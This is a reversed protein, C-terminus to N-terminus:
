NPSIEGITDTELKNRLLPFSYLDPDIRIIEQAAQRASAILPYDTISALKFEEHGHQQTGYLQGPGRLKLDLEALEAGTTLKELNKLRQLTTPNTSETFLLCYAPRDNRGVRGRLQHLQALGFREAAEIVIITADPIDIGVEVVPTTVLIDYVGRRFDTLTQKKESSKLKGHLLGITLPKFVSTLTEFEQTAAKVSTMSEHESTEILPCIVFALNRIESETTRDVLDPKRQEDDPARISLQKKIWQYAAHRKEKPVLWTKVAKRGKPMDDLYSLDLESYLVLAASRPIPTATMTLVHPKHTRQSLFARQRVGFRHQEDIVFVATKEPIKTKLLAHTGVVIPEAGTYTKVSGTVLAIPIKLPDFLQKLTNYHQQALLETPAMLLSSFGNSYAAYLSFAAVVTKGSGVDGQLLRNMPNRGSLDSLIESIARNQARTLTFPVTEFFRNLDQKSIILRFHNKQRHWAQKKLQSSIQRIFVEDFSLRRRARQALPLDPPFHITKLAQDLPMLKYETCLSEPLFEPAQSLTTFVYSIRMRLWKSSIGYTEPYVPVLRGTHVNTLKSMNYKPIIEYDPSEFVPKGHFLKVTGAISIRTNKPLSNLLFPQNFWVIKIRGSEDEIIGQQITLRGRTRISKMEIITASVTVTEGPQISAVTRLASYDLYRSPFHHLLDYVTLIGLKELRKAYVLGVFPLESVSTNWDM